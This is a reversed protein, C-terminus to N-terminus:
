KTPSSITQLEQKVIARLDLDLPQETVKEGARVTVPLILTRKVCVADGPQACIFLIAHLEFNGETSMPGILNEKETLERYGMRIIPNALGAEKRESVFLQSPYGPILFYGPEEPYRLRVNGGVGLKIAKRSDNSELFKPAFARKLQMSIILVALGLVLGAMYTPFRRKFQSQM